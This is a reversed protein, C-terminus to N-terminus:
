GLVGSAMSVVAAEADYGNDCPRGDDACLAARRASRRTELLLTSTATLIGTLEPVPM